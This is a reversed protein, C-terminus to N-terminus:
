GLIISNVNDFYFDLIINYSSNLHEIDSIKNLRNDNERKMFVMESFARKYRDREKHLIKLMM